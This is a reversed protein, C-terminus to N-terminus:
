WRRYRGSRNIPPFKFANEIHNIEINESNRYVIAIIDFRIPMNINYARVYGHTAMCIRRVKENNVAQEPRMIYDSSRTKVEVVVLEKYNTAVIDLEHGRHLGWNRHLIRYGKSILHNAAIDEGIKGLSYAYSM